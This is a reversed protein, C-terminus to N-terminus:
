DYLASAQATKYRGPIPEYIISKNKLETIILNLTEGSIDLEKATKKIDNIHALKDETKWELDRIIDEVTYVKHLQSIVSKMLNHNDGPKELLTCDPPIWREIDPPADHPDGLENDPYTIGMFSMNGGCKKCTLEEKEKKKTERFKGLTKMVTQMQKKKSQAYIGYYRILKFQPDPIQRLIGEIFDFVPMTVKVIKGESKIKNKNENVYYFSVTKGDYNIIRREGVAPHRVYRAIYRAVDKKDNSDIKREGNLVFGHSYEMNMRWLLEKIEDTGKM